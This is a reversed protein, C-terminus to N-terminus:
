SKRILSNKFAITVGYHAILASNPNEGPVVRWKQIFHNKKAVDTERNNEDGM